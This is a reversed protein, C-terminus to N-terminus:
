NLKYYLREFFSAYLVQPWIISMSFSVDDFLADDFLRM